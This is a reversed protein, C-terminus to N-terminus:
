DGKLNQVAFQYGLQEDLIAECSDGVAPVTGLAFRGFVRLPGPLDVYGLAYAPAGTKPNPHIVSYSYVVGQTDVEVTEHLAALPSTTPYPPFRLAGSACHRSALLRPPENNSWINISENM